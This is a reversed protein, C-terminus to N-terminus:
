RPRKNRRKVLSFVNEIPNFRPSYPPTFFLRIDRNNCYSLVDKSHHFKVNDLLIISKDPISFTQLCEIFKLTNFSGDIVKYEFTGTHSMISLCSRTTLRKWKKQIELKKGKPCYGFVDKGKRSFSTEDMSFIPRKTQLLRKRESIFEKIITDHNDSQGYFRAKKRSFGCKRKLISCLFSKSITFHFHDYIKKQIDELLILPQCLLLSKLTQVVQQSSKVKNKSKLYKCTNLFKPDLKNWRYISMHSVDLLNAIKRTSWGFNIKLKKSIIRKDYSHMIYRKTMMHM